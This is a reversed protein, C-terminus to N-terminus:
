PGAEVPTQEPLLPMAAEVYPMLQDWLAVVDPDEPDYADVLETPDTGRRHFFRDGNWTYGLKDGSIQVAQEPGVRGDSILWLPRDDPATGLPMGTFEDRQPLGLVEFLTPVLDEQVTPGSWTAHALDKAWFFALADNEGYHLSWAHTQRQHEFFQEGHDSWVVVLTDDLARRQELEAWLAQLQDDTYRVAAEYRVRLHQELVEQDEPDLTLFQGALLYHSDWDALDYDIEPLGELATLYEAPPDYPAHADRLHLHLFWRKHEVMLEDLEDLALAIMDEAREFGPYVVSDFGQATNWKDSLYGNSSVLATGFGVQRLWDPLMPTDDPLAERYTKSLRPVFAFPVNGQGSLACLIGAYTWNSCAQHADLGVGEGMLQDMFPTLDLDGYRSIHDRRLTDISVFILNAPTPGDYPLFSTEPPPEDQLGGIPTEGDTCALAALWLTTVLM